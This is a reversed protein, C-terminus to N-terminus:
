AEVSAHLRDGAIGTARVPSLVPVGLADGVSELVRRQVPMWRLEGSLLSPRDAGCARGADEVLTGMVSGRLQAQSDGRRGRLAHMLARTLRGRTRMTFRATLQALDPMTRIGQTM